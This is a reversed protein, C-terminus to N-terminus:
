EGVGSSLENMLLENGLKVNCPNKEGMKLEREYKIIVYRSYREMYVREKELSCVARM